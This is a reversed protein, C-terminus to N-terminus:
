IIKDLVNNKKRFSLLFIRENSVLYQFFNFITEKQKKIDIKNSWVQHLLKSYLLQNKDILSIEEKDAKKLFFIKDILYSKKTRKVDNAKKSNAIPTQFVHFKNKINRIILSDDSFVQYKDKLLNAATSKGARSNGIFIILRNNKIVSSGHFFFGKQKILLRQILYLLISYFQIFNIYKYILLGKKNEKNVYLLNNDLKDNSSLKEPKIIIQFEFNKKNEEYFFYKKFYKNINMILNKVAMIDDKKIPPYSEITLKINFGGVKFLFKKNM